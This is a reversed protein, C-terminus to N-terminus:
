KQLDIQYVAFGVDDTAIKKMPYQGKDEIFQAAKDSPSTEFRVDLAVDAKIPAFRWNNDASPTVEGKEQSVKSIYNAVITRNEDPSDFAIFDSGTGPFKNSYARYNNTAIIFTQKMDIPKGKYTLDVIRESNGDLLKCNGDYRAPKSVDVQYNVGDMVDFNYTRFGDWDILSQPQSSTVDIQKFQGASCELWEKVEKGTVKLAVLTNPYLYLDAANRFTLQGSEVETFNAPDNKRGGAKFPAAASLVPLGDLDPDGQIMTEVYDKQALNVIQVTPDDQVLALFSYMVDNAKGIPQNVFDRTANHDEKVASVIGKDADVLPKKNTADFIPRAETQAEAVKWSDGDQELVLDMVGVHSGWRGPMVAAVGNITGKQNDVGQINDFGKGPFVAHSHGFAIADIGNVESLYYTSNEAGAKYPDSSVGSHPIAVIIDAGEKKMQPVLKEATEKIDKAFVKGELNKKDWVMIQPPVFGIYGVKVEHANGDTDKFTHTKILYPKFYHEGTKKDFVNASVYPFNAGELTTALFELGYNFEHNGINGVDYDLQNMAKYVPHTEGPKIGKSAMYDGMPSGQILDGNDVLVSNTVENRAEKVLTAARALGIKQTPKDKYYDYDMVNTHIDTTEIIRLKIEDAMAPGAMALMGGLVAISIPKVAVKM